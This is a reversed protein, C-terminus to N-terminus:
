SMPILSFCYKAAYDSECNAMIAWGVTILVLVINRRSILGLEIRCNEKNNAALYSLIKGRAITM